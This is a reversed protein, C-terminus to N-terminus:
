TGRGCLTLDILFLLFSLPQPVFVTALRKGNKLRCQQQM